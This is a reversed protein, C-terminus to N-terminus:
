SENYPSACNLDYERILYRVQPLTSSPLDSPLVWKYEEIGENGNSRATSLLSCEFVTYASFTYQSSLHAYWITAIPEDILTYCRLEEFLERALCEVLSEDSDVGGGPLTWFSSGDAHQEKVLLVRRSMSILAKTGRRISLQRGLDARDEGTLVPTAQGSNMTLM